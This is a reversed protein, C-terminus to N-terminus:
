AAVLLPRRHTLEFACGAPLVHIRAGTFAIPGDEGGVIMTGSMIAAGASTGALVV